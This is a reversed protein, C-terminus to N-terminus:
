KNINIWDFVITGAAVILAIIVCLKIITNIAFNQKLNKM